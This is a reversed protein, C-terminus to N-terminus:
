ESSQEKRNRFFMLTAGALLIVPLVFLIRSDTLGTSVLIASEEHSATAGLSSSSSTNTTPTPTPTPTPPPTPAPSVYTAFRYDSALESTWSSGSNSSRVPNGTALPNNETYWKFNSYPGDMMGGGSVIAPARLVLAYQTGADVSVPTTFDVIVTTPSGGVLSDSVSATASTVTTPLSASTNWIEVSFSGPTGDKSIDLTVRDLLGSTGATFVQGLYLTSSNLGSNWNRTGTVSQDITGFAQASTAVVASGLVFLSIAASITKSTLRM